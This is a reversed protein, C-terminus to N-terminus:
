LRTNWGLVSLTILIIVALFLLWRRRALATIRSVIALGILGVAALGAAFLLAGGIGAVGYGFTGGLWAMLLTLVAIFLRSRTVAIDMARPNLMRRCGSPLQRRLTTLEQSGTSCRM